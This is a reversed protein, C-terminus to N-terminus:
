DADTLLAVNRQPISMVDNGGVTTNEKALTCTVILTAM